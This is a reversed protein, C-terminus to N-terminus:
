PGREGGAEAAKDAFRWSAVDSARRAWAAVSSCLVSAESAWIAASIPYLVSNENALANLRAKSTAGPAYRPWGSPTGPSAMARASARTALYTRRERTDTGGPSTTPNVASGISERGLLQPHQAGGDSRGAAVGPACTRPTDITGQRYRAIASRSRPARSRRNWLAWSFARDRCCPVMM